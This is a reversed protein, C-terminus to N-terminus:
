LSYCLVILAASVLVAIVTRIRNWRNWRLEYEQRLGALVAESEGDIELAQVRNNLPVNIIFTPLQVGLIYALMAIVLLIREMGDLRWLGLVASALIALVSGVWVLMFVPQNRQIVRDMVQFARLYDRDSLDRMGPMIVVAFAFLFGAVLSCLLTALITIAQFVEM